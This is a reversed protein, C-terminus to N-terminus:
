FHDLELLPCPLRNQWASNARAFNLVMPWGWSRERLCGRIFDPKIGEWSRIGIAGRQYALGLLQKWIKLAAKDSAVVELVRLVGSAYEFIAYGGGEIHGDLMMIELAPWELQSFQHLYHERRLRYKLYDHDRNVGYVQRPLWRQYHCMLFPIQDIEAKTVKVGGGQDNADPLGSLGLAGPKELNLFFEDHGLTQFGFPTYFEEGIESFLLLGDYNRKHSFDILANILRRAYGLGQWSEQTYLAGIGAYRYTKSRCTLEVNYLKCSTAVRKGKRYIVFRYNKVAWPLSMQLWIYDYYEARPLGASWIRHTEKLVPLIDSWQAFEMGM